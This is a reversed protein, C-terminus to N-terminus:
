FFGLTLLHYLHNNQVLFLMMITPSLVLSLYYLITFWTTKRRFLFTLTPLLFIILILLKMSQFTLKIPYCFTSQFDRGCLKVPQHFIGTRYVNIHRIKHIEDRRFNVVWFSHDNSTKLITLKETESLQAVEYAYHTLEDNEIKNPLFWESILVLSLVIGVWMSIKIVRWRYGQFLRIFYNENALRERELQEYYRRKAERIREEKPSHSRRQGVTKQQHNQKKRHNILAEYAANLAIFQEKAKPDPNKDPHYKLALRRYKRRLEADSDVPQAGLLNYCSQINM